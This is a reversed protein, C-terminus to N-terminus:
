KGNPYNSPLVITRVAYTRPPLDSLPKHADVWAQVFETDDTM